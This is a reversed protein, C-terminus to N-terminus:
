TDVLDKAYLQVGVWVVAERGIRVACRWGCLARGVLGLLVSGGVYRGGALGLSVASGM